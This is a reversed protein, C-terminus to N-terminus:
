TVIIEPNTRNIRYYFDFSIVVQATQAELELEYEPEVSVLDIKSVLSNLASNGHVAAEVESTIKEVTDHAAESTTQKVNGEIELSFIFPDIDGMTRADEELETEGPIVNLYPLNADEVPQRLTTFVNTGTTTLGTVATVVAETIQDRAHAM